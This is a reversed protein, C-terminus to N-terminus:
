KNQLINYDSKKYSLVTLSIISISVGQSFTRFLIFSMSSVPYLNKFMTFNNYLM